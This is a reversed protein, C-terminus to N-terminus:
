LEKKLQNIVLSNNKQIDNFKKSSSKKTVAHYKKGKIRAKRKDGEKRLYSERTSLKTM